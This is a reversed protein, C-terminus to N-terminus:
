YEVGKRAKTGKQYPHNKCIFETVYDGKKLLNTPVYEHGTLIIEINFGRCYEIIKDLKEKEQPMRVIVDLVEDLLIFDIVRDKNYLVKEIKDLLQSNGENTFPSVSYFIENFSKLVEDERCSAKIFRFILGKYGWGNLRIVQGNASSTKGKGMGYYIHLM